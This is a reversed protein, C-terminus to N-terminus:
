KKVIESTTAAKGDTAKVIYVGATANELSLKASKTNPTASAVKVGDSSFVDVQSIAEASEVSVYKGDFAINVCSTRATTRISNVIEKNYFLIYDVGGLPQSTKEGKVDIIDIADTNFEIRQLNTVTAIPKDSGSSYVFADQASAGTIGLGAIITTFLIKRM